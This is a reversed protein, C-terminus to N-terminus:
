SRRSRSSPAVTGGQREAGARDVEATIRTRATPDGERGAGAPVAMTIAVGVTAAGIVFMGAVIAAYVVRESM